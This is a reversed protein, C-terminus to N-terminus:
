FGPLSAWSRLRGITSTPIQHHGRPTLGVRRPTQARPSVGVEAVIRAFADFDVLPRPDHHRRLDGVMSALEPFGIKSVAQPDYQQPSLFRRLAAHIRELTKLPMGALIVMTPSAVCPQDVAPDRRPPAGVGDSSIAVCAGAGLGSMAVRAHQSSGWSTNRCKTM